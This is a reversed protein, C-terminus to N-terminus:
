KSRIYKILSWSGLMFLVFSFMVLVAITIWFSAPNGQSTINGYKVIRSSPLYGMALRVVAVGFVILSIGFRIIISTIAKNM